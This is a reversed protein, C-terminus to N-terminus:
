VTDSTFLSYHLKSWQITKFILSTFTLKGLVTYISASHSDTTQKVHSIVMKQGWPVNPLHLLLLVRPSLCHHFALVSSLCVSRIPLSWIRDQQIGSVSLPDAYFPTKVWNQKWLLVYYASITASNKKFGLVLIVMCLFRYHFDMLWLKHVLDPESDIITFLTKNPYLWM